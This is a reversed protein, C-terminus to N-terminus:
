QLKHQRVFSMIMDRLMLVVNLSFSDSLDDEFLDDLTSFIIKSLFAGKARLGPTDRLQEKRILLDMLHDGWFEINDHRIQAAQKDSRALEKFARRVKYRERMSASLTMLHKFVLDETSKSSRQLESLQLRYVDERVFQRLRSVFMIHKKEPFRQYISGVSTSATKAIRSITTKEYGLNLFCADASDLIVEAKEIARAQKSDFIWGYAVATDWWKPKKQMTARDM